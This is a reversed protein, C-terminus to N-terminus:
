YEYGYLEIDKACVKAIMDATTKTHVKRYHAHRSSNTRKVPAGIGFRDLVKVTDAEYNEFRGIMDIQVDGAPLFFLHAPFFHPDIWYREGIYGGIMNQYTVCFDSEFDDSYNEEAYAYVTAYRKVFDEFVPFYRRYWNAYDSVVRDWPNRVFGFKYSTTFSELSLDMRAVQQLTLHQSQIALVREDKRVYRVIGSLMDKGLLGEHTSGGSRPVHIFLCNHEKSYPM